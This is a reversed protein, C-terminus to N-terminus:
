FQMNIFLLFVLLFCTYLEHSMIMPKSRDKKTNYVEATKYTIAQVITWM